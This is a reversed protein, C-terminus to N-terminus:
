PHMSSIARLLRQKRHKGRSGRSNTKGFRFLFNCEFNGNLNCRVRKEIVQEGVAIMNPNELNSTASEQQYENSWALGNNIEDAVPPARMVQTPYNRADIERMEQLLADMRFSQPPPAAMQGLFENVLHTEDLPQSAFHAPGAAGVIHPPTAGAIGDDKHAADHILHAGLRMLPNAGGCEPDVLERLSM